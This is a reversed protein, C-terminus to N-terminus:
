RALRLSILHPHLENIYHALVLSSTIQARRPLRQGKTNILLYIWHSTSDFKILHAMWHIRSSNCSTAGSAAAESFNHDQLTWIFRSSSGAIPFWRILAKANVYPMVSFSIIAISTWVLCPLLIPHPPDLYQTHWAPFYIYYYHCNFRSRFAFVNVVEFFLAEVVENALVVIARYFILPFPASTFLHGGEEGM